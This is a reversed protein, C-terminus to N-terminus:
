LHAWNKIARSLTPEKDLILASQCWKLFHQVCNIQEENCHFRFNLSTNNPDKVRAYTNLAAITDSFILESEDEPHDVCWLMYLPVADILAIDPIDWVLNQHKVIHDNSLQPNHCAPFAKIIRNRISNNNM